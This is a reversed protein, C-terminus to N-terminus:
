KFLGGLKDGLGGGIQGGAAKALFDKWSGFNSIGKVIGDLKDASINKLDLVSGVGVKDLFAQVSDLVTNDKIFKDTIFQELNLKDLDLGLGSAMNTLKGLDMM